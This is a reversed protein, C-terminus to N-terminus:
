PGQQGWRWKIEKSAGQRTWQRFAWSDWPAPPESSTSGPQEATRAAQHTNAAQAAGTNDPTTGPATGPTTGSPALADARKSNAQEAQAAGADPEVLQLGAAVAQDKGLPVWVPQWVGALCMLVKTHGSMCTEAALDVTTKRKLCASVDDATPSFERRKDDDKVQPEDANTSGFMADLEKEAALELVGSGDHGGGQTLPAKVEPEESPPSPAEKAVAPAPEIATAALPAAPMSPEGHAREDASAAALTPSPSPPYLTPDGLQNDPPQEQLPTQTDDVVVTDRKPTKDLPGSVLNTVSPRKFKSWFSKYSAQVGDGEGETAAEGQRPMVPSSAPTEPEM